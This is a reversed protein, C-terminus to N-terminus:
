RLPGAGLVGLRELTVVLLFFSLLVGVVVMLYQRAARKAFNPTGGSRRRNFLSRKPVWPRSDRESHYVLGFRWNAPNQWEEENIQEQTRPETM